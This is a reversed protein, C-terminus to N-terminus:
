RRLLTLLFAGALAAWAWERWWRDVTASAFLLIGIPFALLAAVRLLADPGPQPGLIRSVLAGAAILGGAALAGCAFRQLTSFRARLGIILLLASLFGSAGWGIMAHDFAATASFKGPVLAALLPCVCAAFLPWFWWRPPAVPAIAPTEPLPMAPMAAVTRDDDAPEHGGTRRLGLRRPRRRRGGGAGTGLPVTSDDSTDGGGQSRELFESLRRDGDGGRARLERALDAIYVEGISRLFQEFRGDLLGERASEWHRASLHLLEDLDGAEAGGAFVFRPPAAPAAASVTAPPALTSPIATRLAEAFARADPYRASKEKSLARGLVADIAPPIGSDSASAPPPVETEIARKWAFPDKTRAAVSFPRRATLMEYVMVGVAWLDSRYDSAANEAFDEPAMYPYTGGGGAVSGSGLAEALGFDTLKIEGGEGILVNAPKVDRHIIRREHAFSLADLIATAIRLAEAPPLTVGNRDRLLDALNVGRILEMDILVAGNASDVSHVEVIHPHRGLRDLVRAEDLVRDMEPGAARIEKLAVHRRLLTDWALYVVGSTGHGLVDLREYKGITGIAV